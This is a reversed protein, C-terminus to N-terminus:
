RQLVLKIRSDQQIGTVSQYEVSCLYVGSPLAISQKNKGSWSWNTVGSHRQQLVTREWERGQIDFVSLIIEGAEPITFRVNVTSNFPNPYITLLESAPPHNPNTRSVSQWQPYFHAGIDVRTGDPDRPSDPDGADICPSDELLLFNSSDVSVFLPDAEFNTSDIEFAYRELEFLKAFAYILNHQFIFPPRNGAWDGYFLVLSDDGAFIINNRFDVGRCGNNIEIGGWSGYTDFLCFTNNEVIVSDMYRVRLPMTVLSRTIRVTGPDESYTDLRLAESVRSNPYNTLFECSDVIIPGGECRLASNGSVKCRRITVSGRSRVRIGDKIECDQIVAGSDHFGGTSVNLFNVVSSDISFSASCDGVVAASSELHSITSPIGQMHIQLESYCDELSGGLAVNPHVLTDIEGSSLFRCNTYESYTTGVNDYFTTGTAIITCSSSYISKNITSYSINFRTNVFRDMCPNGIIVSRTITILRGDNGHLRNIGRLASPEGVVVSNGLYLDVDLHVMIETQAGTMVCYDFEHRGAQGILTIATDLNLSHFRVSDEEQGSAVLQGFVVLGQGENFVVEVGERLTLREGQPVWTSDVVIYPNGDRTWEGSVAGEIRTEGFATGTMLMLMLMLM